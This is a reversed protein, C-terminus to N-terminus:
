GFYKERINPFLLLARELNYVSYSEIKLTRNLALRDLKDYLTADIVVNTMIGYGRAGFQDITDSIDQVKTATLSTGNKLLKCQFIFKEPEYQFRRHTWIEIDRGGDRSRSKGMKRMTGQNFGPNCSLVDMCLEEFADDDIEGWPCKIDTSIGALRTAVLFIESLKKNLLLLEQQNPKSINWILYQYDSDIVLAQDGFSSVFYQLASGARLIAPMEDELNGRNLNLLEYYSNDATEPPPHLPNNHPEYTLLSSIWDNKELLNPRQIASYLCARARILEDFPFHILLGRSILYSINNIVFLEAPEFKIEGSESFNSITQQIDADPAIIWTNRSGYKKGPLGARTMEWFQFQREPFESFEVNFFKRDAEAEDEFNGQIEYYHGNIYNALYDDVLEPFAIPLIHLNEKFNELREVHESWDDTDYESSMLESLFHIKESLLKINTPKIGLDKLGSNSSYGIRNAYVSLEQSLYAAEACNYALDSYQRAGEVYLRLIFGDSNEGVFNEISELSPKEEKLDEFYLIKM